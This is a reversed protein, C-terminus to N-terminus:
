LLIAMWVLSILLLALLLVQRFAAEGIFAAKLGALSCGTASFLRRQGKRGKLAQADLGDGDAPV